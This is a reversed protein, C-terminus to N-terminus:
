SDRESTIPNNIPWDINLAPDNWKLTFQEFDGYYSTQKYHFLARDSRVLFSNGFKPPLYIQHRNDESLTHATWQRYQHSSPDNNVAVLYIEGSPCSVLKATGNDGHIGRLVDKHSMSFDDQIFTDTIGAARYAAENYIETYNGRFDEFYSVPSLLLVGDM